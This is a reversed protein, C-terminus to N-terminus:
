TLTITVIEPKAMFRLPLKTTGIGKTVYLTNEGAEYLGNVYKMGYKPLYKDTYFPIRVQGGHSHGSLMLSVNYDDMWDFIDPEHCLVLNFTYPGAANLFSVDGDGILCDTVGFLNINYEPLYLTENILVDFGGAEMIETYLDNGARVYDHNGHVAYKGSPASLESLAESVESVDGEYINLDDILDGTFIIIDPNEGNIMDVVEDFHELDYDFGLHTDGFLVVKFDDYPVLGESSIEVETNELMYPEILRAYAFIGGGIVALILIASVTTKIVNWLFRFM